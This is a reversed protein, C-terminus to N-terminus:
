NRFIEMKWNSLFIKLNEHIQKYYYEVKLIKGREIRILYKEIKWPQRKMFRKM